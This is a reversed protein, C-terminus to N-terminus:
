ALPPPLPWLYTIHAISSCQLAPRSLPRASRSAAVHNQNSPIATRAPAIPHACFDFKTGTLGHYASIAAYTVKGQLTLVLNDREMADWDWQSIPFKKPSTMALTVIFHNKWTRICREARRKARHTRTPFYQFTVKKDNLLFIELEQSSTENDLRVFSLVSWYRSWHQLTFEYAAIYAASKRTQM